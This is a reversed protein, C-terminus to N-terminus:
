YYYLRITSSRVTTYKGHYKNQYSVTLLYLFGNFKSGQPQEDRFAGQTGKFFSVLVRSVLGVRQACAREAWLVERFLDQHLLNKALDPKPNPICSSEGSLLELGAASNESNPGRQHIIYPKISNINFYM